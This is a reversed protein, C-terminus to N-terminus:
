DVSFPVDNGCTDFMKRYEDESQGESTIVVSYLEGDPRTYSLMIPYISDEM